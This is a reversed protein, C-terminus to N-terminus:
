ISLIWMWYLDELFINYGYLKFYIVRKEFCREKRKQRFKTLAAERLALRGEDAVNGINKRDIGGVGISGVAVNGNEVNVTRLTLTGDQGNSGHDSEVANGDVTYNAANSEAPGGFANSSVCQQATNPSNKLLLDHDSQLDVTAKHSIHNYHHLEYHTHEVQFEHESGGMQGRVIEMYEERAFTKKQSSSIGNNPLTQLESSNFSGMGRVSEPMKDFTCPKTGLYTNTSAM